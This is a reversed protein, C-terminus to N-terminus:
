VSAHATIFLHQLTGQRRGLESRKEKLDKFYRLLMDKAHTKVQIFDYRANFNELKDVSRLHRFLSEVSSDGLFTMPSSEDICPYSKKFVDLKCDSPQWIWRKEQKVWYGKNKNNRMHESTCTPFRPPEDRRQFMSNYIYYYVAHPYQVLLHGVFPLTRTANTAQLEKDPIRPLLALEENVYEHRIFVVYIGQQM